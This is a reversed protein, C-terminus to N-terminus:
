WWVRGAALSGSAMCLEGGGACGGGHRLEACRAIVMAVSPCVIRSRMWGRVVVCEPVVSDSVLLRNVCSVGQISTRDIPLWLDAIPTAIAGTYARTLRPAKHLRRKARAPLSASQAIRSGRIQRGLVYDLILALDRDALEERAM